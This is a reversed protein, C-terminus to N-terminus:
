SIGIGSKFGAVGGHSRYTHWFYLGGVAILTLFVWHKLKV